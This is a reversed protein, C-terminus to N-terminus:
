CSAAGSVPQLNGSFVGASQERLIIQHTFLHTNNTKFNVTLMHSAWVVASDARADIEKCFIDLYNQDLSNEPEDLLLLRANSSLIRALELRQLMGRSLTSVKDHAAETLGMLSLAEEPTHAPSHINNKKLGAFNQEIQMWFELNERVNLYPYVSPNHSAIAVAGTQKPFTLKGAGPHLLGALLRLLTSKGSGNPGKVLARDGAKLNMRIERLCFHPPYSFQLNDAKLM